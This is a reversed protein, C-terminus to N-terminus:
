YQGPFYGTEANSIIRKAKEFDRLVARQVNGNLDKGYVISAIERITKGEKKLDFVHLYRMVEDINGTTTPFQFRCMADRDLIVGQCTPIFSDIKTKVQDLLGSITERTVDVVLFLTKSDRIWALMAAKVDELTPKRNNEEEFKHLSAEVMANIEDKLDVVSGCRREHSYTANICIGDFVGGSMEFLDDYNEYFVDGFMMIMVVLEERFPVGQKIAFGLLGIHKDDVPENQYMHLSFKYAQSMELWDRVNGHPDYMISTKILEPNEMAIPKAWELAEKYAESRKLYEAWLRYYPKLETLKGISKKLNDSINCREVEEGLIRQMATKDNM